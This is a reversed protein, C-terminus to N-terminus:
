NEYVTRLEKDKESVVLRIVQTDINRMSTVSEANDVVLPVRLGCYASIAAIVDVGINIRMGNNLATYPVGDYTAECCDNLGGNVQEAYLKWRTLQFKSNITNEVYSVKYRLYEECLFIKRDISSLEEAAKKAGAALENCRDEAFALLAEKALEKELADAKARLAQINTEVTSRITSTEGELQRV